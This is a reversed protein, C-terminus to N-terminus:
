DRQCSPLDSPAAPGILASLDGEDAGTYGTALTPVGVRARDNTVPQM